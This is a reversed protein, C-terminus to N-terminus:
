YANLLPHYITSQHAGTDSRCICRILFLGCIAFKCFKGALRVFIESVYGSAPGAIGIMRDHMALSYLPIGVATRYGLDHVWTNGGDYSRIIIGSTGTLFVEAKSTMSVTHFRFSSSAISSQPFASVINSTLSTWTIGGDTTKFCSAADGVAIGVLTTAMSLGYLSSSTWTNANWSNGGDSSQAIYGLNGVMVIDSGTLSQIANFIVTQSVPATTTSWASSSFQNGVSATYVVPIHNNDMGVAYAQGSYPSITVAYISSASTFSIPSWSTGTSSVYIRPSSAAVSNGVTLYYNTGTSPQSYSSVDDLQYNSVTFVTAWTMGGDISRLICSNYQSSGVIVCETQSVWTASILDYQAQSSTINVSIWAAYAREIFVVFFWVLVHCSVPVAM